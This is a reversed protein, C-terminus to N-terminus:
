YRINAGFRLTRGNLITLPIGVNPYALSQTLVPNANFANFVSLEPSVTVKAIRVPRTFTVDLQNVRPEYLSGPPNLRVTLSSQSLAVGTAARFAAATVVYTQNVPDGPSSQLVASIRARAPLQVSGSAKFATLWPISLQRQDCFRLGTAAPLTTASVFNPDEVDCLISITRGTSTGGSVNVNHFRATLGVDFSNYTTKNNASTTDLENVLPLTAPNANYVTITQGNGRPDPISFPTYNGIPNALNTTYTVAHFERRYYNVALGLGPRLERTLGVNYLIQYPRKLAPDPNKNRRVGFTTPIQAFNIECGPTLYVCGPSGEAINDGNLDTWSLNATSSVMPNYTAAFSSADQQMYRGVSGKIGTRGDGFVDYAAGVRPVVNKFNPLNEIADFSRPGVFRGAPASQANVEERLQEWRLGPNVTLRRIRWSDQAYLGIDGNLSADTSIPTNYVRVQLPAGNNYVQVMNGNNTLTETIRGWKDQFGVKFAHSGTIYSASTVFTKAVFPYYFYTSPADYAFKTAISLDTKSVDGFPNAASPLAVGGQPVLEFGLFNQSFGAELLLKSTLTGTWKAQYDYGVQPQGQGHGEIAAGSPALVGTESGFYQRYKPLLDYMVTLKNRANLQSTLRTTYAHQQSNDIAPSGDAFKQNAIYNKGGWQRTSFLFWLRDRRVPGGVTANFDYLNYLSSPNALGTGANNASQLDKNTYLAVGDFSVRNGGEKPIMNILVGGTQSEATGAVVQYSMEQYAGQNHYVGSISGQNLLTMVSMGDVQLATDNALSGYASVTGQWM